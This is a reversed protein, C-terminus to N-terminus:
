RGHGVEALLAAAVTMLDARAPLPAGARAAQTVSRQWRVAHRVPVGIYDAIAHEPVEDGGCRVVVAQSTPLAVLRAAAVGHVTPPLLVVDLDTRLVTRLPDRPPLDLVVVGQERQLVGVLHQIAAPDPVADADTALVRVGHHEPLAARIVSPELDGSRVRVQSWRTGARGEAGILLDLPLRSCGDILVSEAGSQLALAFAFTSAGIGGVSGTVSMVLGM